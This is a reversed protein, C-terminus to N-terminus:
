DVIADTAPLILVGRFLRFPMKELNQGLSLNILNKHQKRSYKVSQHDHNQTSVHELRVPLRLNVVIPTAIAPFYKFPEQVFNM